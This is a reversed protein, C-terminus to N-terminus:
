ARGQEQSRFGRLIVVNALPQMLGAAVGELARMAIMLSFSRSCGGVIGGVMLLLAAGTYARRLGYRQLLWPTLPLALTMALMFAASIWQAREHGIAFYRTMEPVAVNVITMSLASAMMGVMVTALVIWKYSEGHRSRLDELTLPHAAAQTTMLAGR